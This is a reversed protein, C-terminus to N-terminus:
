RSEASDPSRHEQTKATASQAMIRRYSSIFVGGGGLFVGLLLCWPETAWRQDLWRGLFGFAVLAIAFQAGLGALTGLPVGDNAIPVRRDSRPGRDTTTV